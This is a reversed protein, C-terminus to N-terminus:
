RRGWRQENTPTWRLVLERSEGPRIRVTDSMWDNSDLLVVEKSTDQEELIVETILVDVRGVNSLTLTADSSAGNRQPSSFSLSKLSFVLNPDSSTSPGDKCSVLIGLVFLFILRLSFHKPDM